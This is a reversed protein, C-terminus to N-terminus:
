NRDGLNILGLGTVVGICTCIIYFIFKPLYIVSTTGYPITLLGVVLLGLFALGGRDIRNTILFMVVCGLILFGMTFPDGVAAIVADAIMNALDQSM